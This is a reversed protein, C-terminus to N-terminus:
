DKVCHRRFSSVYFWALCPPANRSSFPRTEIVLQQIATTVQDVSNFSDRPLLPLVWDHNYVPWPSERAELNATGKVGETHASLGARGGAFRGAGLGRGGTSREDRQFSPMKGFSVILAGEEGRDCRCAPLGAM